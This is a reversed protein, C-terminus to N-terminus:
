GVKKEDEPERMWFRGRGAGREWRREEELVEREEVREVIGVSM